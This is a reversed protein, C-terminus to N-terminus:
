LIIAIKGVISQMHNHIAPRLGGIMAAMSSTCSTEKVAFSSDGEEGSGGKVEALGWFHRSPVHRHRKRGARKIGDSCEIENRM